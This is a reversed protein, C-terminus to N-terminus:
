SNQLIKFTLSISALCFYVTGEWADESLSKVKYEGILSNHSFCYTQDNNIEERTKINAATGTTTAQEHHIFRVVFDNDAASM